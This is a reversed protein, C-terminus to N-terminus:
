ILKVFYIIDIRISSFVFIITCPKVPLIPVNWAPSIIFYPELRARPTVGGVLNSGYKIMEGAHFTGIKLVTFGQVIIKTKEDILISM